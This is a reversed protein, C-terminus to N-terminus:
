DAATMHPGEALSVVDNHFDALRIGVIEGTYAGFRAVQAGM